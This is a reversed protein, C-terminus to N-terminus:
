LVISSSLVHFKNIRTELSVKKSLQFMYNRRKQSTKGCPGDCMALEIKTDM